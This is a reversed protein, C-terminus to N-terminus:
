DMTSALPCHKCTFWLNEYSVLNEVSFPKILAELEVIKSEDTCPMMLCPVINNNEIQIILLQEDLRSKIYFFPSISTSLYPYSQYIEGFSINKQVRYLKQPVRVPTDDLMEQLLTTNGLSADHQYALLQEYFLQAKQPSLTNLWLVQHLTNFYYNKLQNEHDAQNFHTTVQPPIKECIRKYKEQLQEITNRLGTYTDRTGIFEKMYLIPQREGRCLKLFVSSQAYIPLGQILACFTDFIKRLLETNSIANNIQLFPDTKTKNYHLQLDKILPPIVTTEPFLTYAHTLLDGEGNLLNKHVETPDCGLEQSLMKLVHKLQLSGGTKKRRLKCLIQKTKNVRNKKKKKTIRKLQTKVKRKRKVMKRTCVTGRGQKITNLCIYAM